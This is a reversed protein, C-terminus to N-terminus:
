HILQTPRIHFRIQKIDIEPTLYTSLDKKM